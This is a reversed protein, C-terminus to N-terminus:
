SITEEKVIRQIRKAQEEPHYIIRRLRCESMENLQALRLEREQGSYDRVMSLNLGKAQEFTVHFRQDLTRQDQPGKLTKQPPMSAFQSLESLSIKSVSKSIPNVHTNHMINVLSASYKRIMEREYRLAEQVDNTEMVITKVVQEGHEWIDRIVDHKRLRYGRYTAGRKVEWEHERLRDGTGKGVYFVDGGMSAPYALTYVYYKGM